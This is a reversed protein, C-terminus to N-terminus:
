CQWDGDCDGGNGGDAPDLPPPSGAFGGEIVIEVIEALPAEYSLATDELNLLEKNM